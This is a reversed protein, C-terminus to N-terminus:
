QKASDTPDLPIEAETALYQVRVGTKQQLFDALQSDIVLEFDRNDGSHWRQGDRFELIIESRESPAM